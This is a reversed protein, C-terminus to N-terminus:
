IKSSGDLCVPEIELRKGAAIIINMFSYRLEQRAEWGSQDQTDFGKTQDALRRQAINVISMFARSPDEDLDDLEDQTIFDLISM